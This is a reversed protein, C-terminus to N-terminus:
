SSRDAKPIADPQEELAAEAANLAETRIESAIIAEYISEHLEESDSSLGFALASAARAKRFRSLADPTMVQGSAEYLNLYEADLKEALQRLKIRALSREGDGRLILELAAELGNTELGSQSVAVACVVWAARRQQSKSSHRFLNALAPSISDLRNRTNM